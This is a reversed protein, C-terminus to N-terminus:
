ERASAQRAGKADLAPPQRVRAPRTRAICHLAGGDLSIADSAVRVLRRGSFAKRIAALARAERAPNGEYVPVLVADNFVLLNLYSRYIYGDEAFPDIEPEPMPVPVIRLPRGDGLRVTELIARNHELISHNAPSSEPEYYELLVVDDAAPHLFMDVHPVVDGALPQLVVVDECGFWVRAEDEFRAEDLGNNDLTRETTFCLGRGNTVLDGGDVRLPSRYVSSRPAHDGLGTPVSDDYLCNSFYRPDVIALEKDTFVWIPGYDRMWVSDFPLDDVVQVYPADLDVQELLEALQSRHEPDVLVVVEGEPAAADLIAAFMEDYDPIGPYALYLAEAPEFDAPLRVPAPPPATFGFVEPMWDRLGDLSAADIEGPEATVGSLALWAIPLDCDGLYPPDARDPLSTDGLAPPAGIAFSPLLLAAGLAIAEIVTSGAGGSSGRM